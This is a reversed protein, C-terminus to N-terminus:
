GRIMEAKGALQDFQETTVKVHFVEAIHDVWSIIFYRWGDHITLHRLERQALAQHLFDLKGRYNLEWAIGQTPFVGADTIPSGPRDKGMGTANIVLSGPPLEAMLQDNTHPDENLVYTIEMTAPLQEVIARLKDLAPQNRSVIVLRQPGNGADPHMLLSVTIATGSGGAGLCLVHGRSHSWYGPEIIQQLALGCNIPDKAYGYLGSTDPGDRKVICSVEQCFQAYRDLSDFMDSTAQLLDIKHTTVLAGLSLPDNKIQAVVQRYQEPAAHLPLDVGVLQAYNLSLVEAWLPFLHMISSQGTTVGIFYMTPVNQQVITFDQEM